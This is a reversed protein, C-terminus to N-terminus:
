YREYEQERKKTRGHKENEENMQMYRNAYKVRGAAQAARGIIELAKFFGIRSMPFSIMATYNHQTQQQLDARDIVGKAKLHDRENSARTILQQYESRANSNVMRKATEILGASPKMQEKINEYNGLSEAALNLRENDRLLENGKRALEQIEDLPVTKGLERNLENIARAEDYGINLFAKPTIEAHYQSAVQRIEAMTFAKEASKLIDISKAIEARNKQIETLQAEKQTTFETWKLQLDDRNEFGMSYLEKKDRKIYEQAQKYQAKGEGFHRDKFSIESIKEQCRDIRDLLYNANTYPREALKVAKAMEDLNILEPELESFKQRVSSMDAYYGLTDKALLVARKEEPEFYYWRDKEAQL